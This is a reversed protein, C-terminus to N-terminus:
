QCASPPTSSATLTGSVVTIYSVGGNVDGMVVCGPVSSSGLFLKKAHISADATHSGFYVDAMSSNGIVTTNAGAGIASAGLVISNSDNNDYGRSQTGIYISNAAATLNSSNAQYSGAFDGIAINGEGTLYYFAARGLAVNESGTTNHDLALHGVAVNANGTSNYELTQSGLASNLVGTTNGVLSQYGVASNLSGTTSGLARRGIATNDSGTNFGLAQSGVATNHYGGDGGALVALGIAVNENGTLNGALAGSGVVTNYIASGGGLGITLGNITSDNTSTLSTVKATGNVDLTATPASTGIGLRGNTNDWFLKLNNQTITNGDSFLVSGASFSSAGTGGRSIPLQGQWVISHTNNSSSITVNSDNQFAQTNGTQGNLSQVVALAKSPTFFFLFLTLLTTLSIQLKLNRM